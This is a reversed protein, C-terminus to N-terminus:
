TVMNVISGGNRGYEAEGSAIVPIEALADVPLITAPTGFM